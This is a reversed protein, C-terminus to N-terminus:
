SLVRCHADLGFSYCHADGAVRISVHKSFTDMNKLGKASLFFEIQSSMNADM